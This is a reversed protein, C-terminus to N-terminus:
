SELSDTVWCEFEELEHSYILQDLNHIGTGIIIGQRDKLTRMQADRCKSEVIGFLFSKSLHHLTVIFM